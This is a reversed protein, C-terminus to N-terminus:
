ARSPKKWNSNTVVIDDQYDPNTTEMELSFNPGELMILQGEYGTPNFSNITGGTVKLSKLTTDSSLDKTTFNVSVDNHSASLEEENTTCEVTKVTVKGNGNVKYKLELINMGSSILGDAVSNADLIIGNAGEESIKWGNAAGKSALELTSDQEIKFQCYSIDDNSSKFHLKITAQEGEVIETNDTDLKVTLNLEDAFVDGVFLFCM